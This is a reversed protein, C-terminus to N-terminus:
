VLDEETIEVFDAPDNCWFEAPTLKRHQSKTIQPQNLPMWKDRYEIKMEPIETKRHMPQFWTKKGQLPDIPILNSLTQFQNAPYTNM